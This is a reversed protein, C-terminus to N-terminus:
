KKNSKQLDHAASLAKRAEQLFVSLVEARLECWGKGKQAESPLAICESIASTAAVYATRVQRESIEGGLSISAATYLADQSQGPREKSCIEFQALAIFCLFLDNSPRGAKASQEVLSCTLGDRFRVAEADARDQAVASREEEPMGPTEKLREYLDKMVQERLYDVVPKLPDDLHTDDPYVLRYAAELVSRPPPRRFPNQAGGYNHRAGGRM